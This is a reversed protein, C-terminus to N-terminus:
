ILKKIEAVIRSGDKIAQEADERSAMFESDYAVMHRLSRYHDFLEITAKNIKGVDVYKEKLYVVVCYHSKERYGDKALVAKAAILMAEYAMLVSGDPADIKLSASAEALITNAKEVM